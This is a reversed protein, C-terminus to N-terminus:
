TKHAHYIRVKNPYLMCIIVLTLALLFGTGLGNMMVSYVVLDALIKLFLHSLFASYILGGAIDLYSHMGLYVRSLSVLMISGLAVLFLIVGFIPYADIPYERYVLTLMTYSINMAAMAHTSPFGYELLYKHELKVVPPTM